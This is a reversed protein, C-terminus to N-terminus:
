DPSFPVSSGANLLFLQLTSGGPPQYISRDSHQGHPSARTQTAADASVASPRSVSSAVQPLQCALATSIRDLLGFDSARQLRCGLGDHLCRHQGSYAEVGTRLASGGMPVCPRVMPQLSPPMGPYRQGPLYRPAMGMEPDPRTALASATEYLAPRTANSRSHSGYAGPAEFGVGYRSFLHEACPLAQEEGLQGSAGLPQPAPAGPEQASVVSRSLSSNDALRRSLQPHPHEMDLTSGPCGGRTQYISPPVPDLWLPPSQVSIGSGRLCVSPFWDARKPYSSPSYFGTKMEAPPVPEVADKSQVSTFYIGRFKPLLRAFQITYGLRVTRILWRSLSPLALWAGLQHALPILPVTASTGATPCGPLPLPSSGQIGHQRISAGLRFSLFSPRFGPSLSFQEKKSLTPVVPSPSSVMRQGEGPPPPPSTPIARLVNEEMELNGTDPDSRLRSPRGKLLRRLLPSHQREAAPEVDRSLSQGKCHHPPPLGRCHRRFPWGLTRATVKMARLAFDTVLRLEQMAESDSIGEHLQKLTKAQFVQLIAMAHLAFAAQGAAGYAKAALASSLKCAPARQVWSGIMWGRASPLLAKPTLRPSLLGRLPPSDLPTMLRLRRCM